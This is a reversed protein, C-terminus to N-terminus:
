DASQEIWTAVLDAVQDSNRDMMMMHSNGKIGREPLEIWGTKVGASTLAARYRQPAKVLTPWPASELHDGYVFLHPIAKLTAVDVKDPDPAGSPELAVLAKIRGPAHLAANFGFNGGQSHVVIVCPCVRAVLQDYAAQTPVDNTIWRPVGQKAFQDLADTPFQTDPYPRRSTANADYSGPPGLRFLEWAEKKSRFMPESKFFEPYRAWSARGREVADSVYVDYGRNLFFMQWGPKGDPKTEWTVGTLGGGHWLLLPYRFRPAALNVYQVYMQEIEFAGNPDVKLPPMGATFSVERTPQGSIAVERGGIHFSGIEKVLIDACTPTATMGAALLVAVLGSYTHSSM